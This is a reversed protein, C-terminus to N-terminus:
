RIVLVNNPENAKFYALLEKKNYMRLNHESPVFAYQLENIRQWNGGSFYYRSHYKSETSFTPHNPKKFMEPLRKGLKIVGAKWAGRLDYDYSHNRRLYMPATQIWRRFKKEEEPKLETNFRHKFGNRNAKVVLAESLHKLLGQPDEGTGLEEGDDDVHQWRGQQSILIKHGPKQPHSMKAIGAEVPDGIWGKNKGVMLTRNQGPSENLVHSILRDATSTM